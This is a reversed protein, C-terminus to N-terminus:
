WSLISCKGALQFLVRKSDVIGSYSNESHLHSLSSLPKLLYAFLCLLYVGMSVIEACALRHKCIHRDWKKIAINICKPKVGRLLRNWCHSLNRVIILPFFLFVVYDTDYTVSSFKRRTNEANTSKPFTNNRSSVRTNFSPCIKKDIKRKCVQRPM